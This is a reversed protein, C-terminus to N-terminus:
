GVDYMTGLKDYMVIVFCQHIKKVAKDTVTVTVSPQSIPQNRAMTNLETYMLYHLEQVLDNAM